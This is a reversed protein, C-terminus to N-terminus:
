QVHVLNLSACSLKSFFTNSTLLTVRYYTYLINKTCGMKKFPPMFNSWVQSNLHLNLPQVSSYSSLEVKNQVPSSFHIEIDTLEGISAWSASSPDSVQDFTPQRRAMSVRLQVDDIMGGNVQLWSFLVKFMLYTLLFHTECAM